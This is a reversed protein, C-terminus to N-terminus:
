MMVVLVEYVCMLLYNVLCEVVVDVVYFEFDYYFLLFLILFLIVWGDVGLMLCEDVFFLVVYFVVDVYVFDVVYGYVCWDFVYLYFEVDGNIVIDGICLCVSKFDFGGFFNWCGFYLVEVCWGDVIFM